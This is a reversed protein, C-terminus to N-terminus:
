SPFGTEDRDEECGQEQVRRVYGREGLRGDKIHAVNKGMEDASQDERDIAIHANGAISM